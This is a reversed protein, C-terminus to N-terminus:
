ISMQAYFYVQSWKVIDRRAGEFDLDKPGHVEREGLPECLEWDSSFGEPTPTGSPNRASAHSGLRACQVSAQHSSRGSPVGRPSFSAHRLMERRQAELQLVGFMPREFPPFETFSPGVFLPDFLVKRSIDLHASSWCGAELFGLEFQQHGATKRRVRRRQPAHLITLPNMM